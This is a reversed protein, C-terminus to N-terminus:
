DGFSEFIGFGDRRFVLSKGFQASVSVSMYLGTPCRYGHEEYYINLQRCAVDTFPMADM